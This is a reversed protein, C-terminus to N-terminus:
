LDNSAVTRNQWQESLQGRYVRASRGGGIYSHESFNQTALLIEELPIVFSELNQHQYSPLTFISASENNQIDLAEQIRRIIMSMTPRDKVNWSICQYAIKKFLRFSRINVHDKIHPDILNDLGDDYYRRVLSILSQPRNDGVSRTQHAFMGSLVEFLVVGFSYVDSEIKPTAGETYLPDMYSPTGAVLEESSEVSPQNPNVLISLNFSCIKAELNDDLLVKQAKINRHIVLRGEGLGSHLYELGAAAGVCIKLRQAWTLSRRKDTEDLHEYLSQNNAYESVIIMENAEDCYGIFGIINEHNFGSMMEVVNLFEPQGLYPGPRLCNFAAKRNQWRESLEGKFVVSYGGRGIEAESSFNHTALVIEELPILYEQLNTRTSSM